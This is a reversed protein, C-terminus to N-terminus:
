ADINNVVDKRTVDFHRTRDAVGVNAASALSRTAAIILSVRRIRRLFNSAEGLFLIRPAVRQELFLATMKNPTRSPADQIIIPLYFYAIGRAIDRM